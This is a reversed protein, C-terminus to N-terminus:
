RSEDDWPDVSIIGVPTASEADIVFSFSTDRGVLPLYALSDIDADLTALLTSIETGAEPNRELLEALNRARAIVDATRDAYPSWYEPRREIDAAVELARPEAVAQEVFHRQPFNRRRQFWKKREICTLAERPLSKAVETM